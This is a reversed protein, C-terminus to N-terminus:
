ATRMDVKMKRILEDIFKEADGAGEVTIYNTIQVSKGGTEMNDLKQWFKDLPVVAEDGAEGAIVATERTLIGGQALRPFSLKSLKSINVKPIKNIWNIAGNILGIAKNITSEILSIVGNIGSKVAGSIANAISSGLNKFKNKVKDWLGGWFQGWGSFKNKIATWARGFLGGFWGVVGSFVGKVKDWLGQFIGKVLAGAGQFVTLTLEFGLKMASFALKALGMIIAPLNQGIMQGLSKIKELIVDKNEILKDGFSTLLEAGKELMSPAAQVVGQILAVILNFGAQVLAPIREAIRIVFASVLYTAKEFFEPGKEQIKQSINSLGEDIAQGQMDLTHWIGGVGNKQYSDILDVIGEGVVGVGEKMQAFAHAINGAGIEQIIEGMTNTVKTKLNTMSTGIGGTAAIAQEEFSEMEGLGNENLDLIAQEVKKTIEPNEKWADNLDKWNANAGVVSKAIADLQAPMAENIIKMSQADSKGAAIMQYWQQMASNAKEQGQGGALTANNLALTLDTAHDLSGGLAAFQQQVSAIGDLTTPLGDIGDKLKNIAADADKSDHGLNQMVISYNNLTDVRSIAGGLNNKISSAVVNIGSSVLNAAAGKLVSFGGSLKSMGSQMGDMSGGFEGASRAADSLGREYQSTDLRLTASLDFVDM